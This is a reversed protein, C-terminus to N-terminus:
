APCQGLLHVARADNPLLASASGARAAAHWSAPTFSVLMCLCTRVKIARSAVKDLFDLLQVCLLKVHAAPWSGCCLSHLWAKKHSYFQAAAALDTEASLVLHHLDACVHWELLHAGGQKRGVARRPSIQAGGADVDAAAASDGRPRGACACLINVKAHSACPATCAFERQSWRGRQEGPPATTESFLCPM